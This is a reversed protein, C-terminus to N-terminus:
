NPALHRNPPVIGNYWYLTWLKELKIQEAHGDYMGMNIAGPLIVNGTLSRPARNPSVSGHRAITLRGMLDTHVNFLRGQYLDRCPADTGTPWTDVWNADFFVPTMTTKSVSADTTFYREPTAQGDGRKDSFLWGNFGLSGTYNVILDNGPDIPKLWLQDASGQGNAGNMTPPKKAVPCIFLNTAKAYYEIFNQVWAGSSTSNPPTYSVMKGYDHAYMISALTMQKHNSLCQISLAKAKAKALAPLLMAALIAIIAIVVLLEILTFAGRSLSCSTSVPNGSAESFYCRNRRRAKM